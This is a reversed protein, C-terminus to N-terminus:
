WSAEYEIHFMPAKDPGVSLRIASNLQLIDLAKQIIALANKLQHFYYEDYQMSGFFFGETTPLIEAAKDNDELVKNIDKKLETLYYATVHHRGPIDESMMNRVFWGHIANAKRLYGLDYTEDRRKVAVVSDPSTAIFDHPQGEIFAYSKVVYFYQDLGM